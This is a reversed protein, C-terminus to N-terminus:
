IMGGSSIAARRRQVAAKVWKLRRQTPASRSANGHRDIGQWFETIDPTLDASVRLRDVNSARFELTVVASQGPKVDGLSLRAEYYSYTQDSDPELSTECVYGEPGHTNELVWPGCTEAFDESLLILTDGYGIPEHEVRLILEVDKADFSMANLCDVEIKLYDTLQRGNYEVPIDSADMVDRLIIDLYPIGRRAYDERNWRDQEIDLATRALAAQEEAKKIGILAFKAAAITAVLTAVGVILTVIAVIDV